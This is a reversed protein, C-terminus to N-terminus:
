EHNEFIKTKHDSSKVRFGWIFHYDLGLQDAFAEPKNSFLHLPSLPVCCVHWASLAHWGLCLKAKQDFQM